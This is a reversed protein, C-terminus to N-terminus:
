KIFKVTQKSEGNADGVTIVFSSEGEGLAALTPVFLSVDIEVYTQGEVEDGVPLELDAIADLKAEKDPDEDDGVLDMTASLGVSSLLEDSLVDSVIEFVMSTIGAYHSSSVAIKVEPNRLTSDNEIEKATYISYTTEFDYDGVWEIKPLIDNVSALKLTTVSSRGQSDTATLEVEHVGLYQYLGYAGDYTLTAVVQSSENSNRLSLYNSLSALASEGNDYITISNDADFGVASLAAMLEDSTSSLKISLSKVTTDDGQPDIYVKYIPSYTRSDEDILSNKISFIDETSSGDALTVLPASAVDEPDAIVDEAFAEDVGLSLFETDTVSVEIETDYYWTTTEVSFGLGGEENYDIKVSINRYQGAKVGTVEDVWDGDAIKFYADGTNYMGSLRVEITEDDPAAFYGYKGTPHNAPDFELTESNAELVVRLPIEGDYPDTSLDAEVKFKEILDISMEVSVKVNVLKCVVEGVSTVNNNGVICLQSGYYAPCDWDADPIYASECSMVEVLYRGAALTFASKTTADKFKFKGNEILEGTSYNSIKVIFDAESIGSGDGGDGGDTRTSAVLGDVGDSGSDSYTDDLDDVFLSMGSLSLSGSSDPDIGTSDEMETFDTSDEMCGVNLAVLAFLITFLHLKSKMDKYNEIKKNSQQCHTLIM